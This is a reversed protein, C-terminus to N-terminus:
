NIVGKIRRLGSAVAEEKILKFMGIVGTHEVHPGGCFEASIVEGSEKDYITYVSVTEAYKEGFVGIAGLKRAEELPLNQRKVSLDAKIWGNVLKEVEAKEEDTMKRDFTFDFRTREETINSGKQWVNEGLVKRLAANMLHTATHLRIIKDSHSALGGKFQGASATRSLEQHKKFEEEFQSINAVTAFEKTLEFPFGFTQFLDFAEKGTIGEKRELIKMGKALTTRFKLEEKKLEDEIKSNNLEAYIRGYIHRIVDAIDTTFDQEIGLKQGYTISRRILRRLIYGRDKNSPIIGDAILFVAARLHDAIIREAKQGQVKSLIRIKEIIPLFLETDYISEKGELVATTREMGMGTDVNKQRLPIFKGEATKEYQMFVNNWIEVWEKGTNYFIETDPGCPGTIGPPGWWNDKKGLYEIQDDRFGLSKWIKASEEDKPADQDGAFVSVKLKERELGLWKKDTLFEYSWAISEQKWYGGSRGPDDPRAPDGLSWNGLMEFFTNHVNDGVEDIDDTRLSKQVSVLRIGAPHKEGLLFPVLPHMGATTFLVSPDDAPVLSASPIIEHGKEVFFNLFKNRLEKSDM